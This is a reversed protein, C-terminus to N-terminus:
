AAVEQEIKSFGGAAQPWNSKTLYYAPSIYVGAECFSCYYNSNKILARCFRLHKIKNAKRFDSVFVNDSFRIRQGTFGRIPTTRNSSYTTRNIEFKFTNSRILSLNLM